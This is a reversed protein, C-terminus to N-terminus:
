LFPFVELPDAAAGRHRHTTGWEPRGGRNLGGRVNALIRSVGAGLSPGAYFRDARGFTWAEFAFCGM